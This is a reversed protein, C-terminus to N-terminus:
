GKKALLSNFLTMAGEPDLVFSELDIYVDLTFRLTGTTSSFDVEDVTVDFAAAQLAAVRASIQDVTLYSHEDMSM